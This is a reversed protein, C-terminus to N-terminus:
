NNKEEREDGDGNDRDGRDNREGGGGQRYKIGWGDRTRGGAGMVGSGGDRPSKRRGVGGARRRGQGQGGIDGMLVFIDTVPVTPTLCAPRSRAPIHWAPLARSPGKGHHPVDDSTGQEQLVGLLLVWHVTPRRELVRMGQRVPGQHILDLVLHLHM